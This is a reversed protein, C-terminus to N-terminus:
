QRALRYVGSTEGAVEDELIARVHDELVVLAESSDGDVHCDDCVRLLQAHTHSGPRKLEASVCDALVHAAATDACDMLLLAERMLHGQNEPYTSFPTVLPPEAPGSPSGGYGHFLSKIMSSVSM